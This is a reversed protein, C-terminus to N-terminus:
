FTCNHNNRDYEEESNEDDGDDAVADWEAAEEHV